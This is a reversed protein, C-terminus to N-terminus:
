GDVEARSNAERIAAAAEAIAARWADAHQPLLATVLPVSIGNTSVYSGGSTTYGVVGGTLAVLRENYIKAM